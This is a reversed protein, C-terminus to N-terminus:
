VKIYVSRLFRLTDKFSCGGLDVPPKGFFPFSLPLATEVKCVGCM